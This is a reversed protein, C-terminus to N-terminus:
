AREKRPDRPVYNGMKICRVGRPGGTERYPTFDAPRSALIAQLKAYQASALFRELATTEDPEKTNLYGQPMPAGILKNEGVYCEKSGTLDVAALSNRIVNARIEINRSRHEFLSERESTWLSIAVRGNGEFRNKEMRTGAGHEIAVGTRGNRRIDNELLISGDSFGLWFGYCSNSAFNRYYVNRRSFTGVFASTPSWSGDNCAIVNDDCSGRMRYSGTEMDYGMDNLNTLNLGAGSHTMSNGVIYNHHCSNAMGIGASEGGFWGRWFRNVFDTLNWSVVNGSSEWLGVGWGSNFSFDNETILCDHSDILLVGNQSNMGRCRRVVGARCNEMWIGAGYGRWQRVDRIALYIEVPAGEQFIRHARSYSVDCGELDVNECDVARINHRYGQVVANKITVNKRGEINIGAGEFAEREAALVDCSALVAGQFDITVNDAEVRLAGRGDLDMLEYRGPKIRASASIIRTDEGLTLEPLPDKSM